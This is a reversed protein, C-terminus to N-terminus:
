DRVGLEFDPLGVRDVTRRLEFARGFVPSRLWGGEAVAPEYGDRGLVLIRFDLEEARADVLWFERVGAAAYDEIHDRDKQISSPSIVELAMDPAGLLEDEREPNLQVRGSEFSEFLVLFGDPESSLEGAEHTFWSPPFVYRGLGLERALRHLTVNIARVVPEHSRYSQNVEIHVRGRSFSVRPGNEDQRAVWARFGDLTFIEPPIELGGITLAASPGVVLTTEEAM